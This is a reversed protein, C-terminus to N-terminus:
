RSVTPDLGLQAPIDERVVTGTAGTDIMANVLIPAPVLQDDKRLVEEIISGVALRVEVLPGLGQLNPVQTTFSPM